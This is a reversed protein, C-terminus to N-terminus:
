FGVWFFFFFFGFFVGSDESKFEVGQFVWRWGWRWACSTTHFVWSFNQGRAAGLDEVAQGIEKEKGKGEGGERDGGADRNGDAVGCLELPAPLNAFEASPLMAIDKVPGHIVGRRGVIGQKSSEHETITMVKLKEGPNGVTHFIGSTYDVGIGFEGDDRESNGGVGLTRNGNGKEKEHDNRWRWEEARRREARRGEQEGFIQTMIEQVSCGGKGKEDGDREQAIEWARSWLTKMDRVKGMALSSELFRPFERYRDVKGGENGSLLSQPVVDGYCSEVEGAGADGREGGGDMVACDKRAAFLVKQTYKQPGVKGIARADVETDKEVGYEELLKVNVERRDRLFRGIVIEGPFQLWTNANLLLVLDEDHMGKGNLFDLTDQIEQLVSTEKEKEAKKDSESIFGLLTPPPYNLISATLLTKCLTLSKKRAPILLHFEPTTDTNTITENYPFPITADWESSETITHSEFAGALKEPVSSDLQSVSPQFKYAHWKGLVILIVSSMFILSFFIRSRLRSPRKLERLKHAMFSMPSIKRRSTEPVAGNETPVEEYNM